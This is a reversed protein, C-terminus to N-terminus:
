QEEHYRSRTDIYRELPRSGSQERRGRGRGSDSGSGRSSGSSRTATMQMTKKRISGLRKRGITALCFGTTRVKTLGNTQQRGAKTGM